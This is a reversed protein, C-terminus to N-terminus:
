YFAITTGDSLLGAPQAQRQEKGFLWRLEPRLRRLYLWRWFSPRSARSLPVQEAWPALIDGWARAWHRMQFHIRDLGYWERRPEVLRLGRARAIERLRRDLAHSREVLAELTLRSNPFIIRRLLTYRARNLGELAFLPLSTLVVRDSANQVRDLCWQLWDVIEPAPVEYLLDNGIDTVLAAAPLVPGNKLAQWLGCTTIGPLERWLVAKRLGFSRGHGLAALVELPGGWLGLATEVVTGIARTLNSAGLLIVRRAPPRGNTDTSPPTLSM